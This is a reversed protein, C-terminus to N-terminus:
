HQPHAMAQREFRGPGQAHRVVRAHANVCRPQDHFSDPEVAIRGAHRGIDADHRRVRQRGHQRANALTVPVQRGEGVLACGDGVVLEVRHRAVKGGVQLTDPGVHFFVDNVTAGGSVTSSLVRQVKKRDSEFVYSALPRPRQNVYKIAEDLEGYGLVPLILRFIEEKLVTSDPPVDTLLLPAFLRRKPDNVADSLPWARAGGGVSTPAHNRM